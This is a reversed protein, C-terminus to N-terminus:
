EIGKVTPTKKRQSKGLQEDEKSVRDKKLQMSQGTDFVDHQYRKDLLSANAKKKASVYVRIEFCGGIIMLGLTM